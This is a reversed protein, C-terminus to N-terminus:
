EYRLVEIPDVRTARRAPFYSAALAVATLIAGIGLYTLPNFPSVQFLLSETLRALGFAAPIGAAVGALALMLGQRLILFLVQNPQAGLAIRIGIDRSRQSVSYAVVGYIGVTALLLASAAFAGLTRTRFRPAAMSANVVEELSQVNAVPQGKDIAAVQARITEVMGM